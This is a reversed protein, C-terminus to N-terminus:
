FFRSLSQLFHCRRLDDASAKGDFFPSEHYCFVATVLCLRMALRCLALFWRAFAREFYFSNTMLQRVLFLLTLLCWYNSCLSRELIDFWLWSLHFSYWLRNQVLKRQEFIHRTMVNLVIMLRGLQHLITFWCHHRLPVHVRLVSMMYNDLM